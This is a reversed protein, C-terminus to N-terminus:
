REVGDENTVLVGGDKSASSALGRNIEFMMSVLQPAKPSPKVASWLGTVHQYRGTTICGLGYIHWGDALAYAKALVESAVDRIEFNSFNSYAVLRCVGADEKIYEFPVAPPGVISEVPLFHERKAKGMDKAQVYISWWVCFDSTPAFDTM